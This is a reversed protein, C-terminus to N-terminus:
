GPAPDPVAAARNRRRDLAAGLLGPQHLGRRTLHDEAWAPEWPQLFEASERRLGTWAQFDAHLPARLTLRETELRIKRRARMLM